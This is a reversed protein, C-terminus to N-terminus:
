RREEGRIDLVITQAEVPQDAFTWLKYQQQQRNSVPQRGQSPTPAQNTYIYSSQLPESIRTSIEPQAVAPTPLTGTFPNFEDDYYAPIEAMGLPKKDRYQEMPINQHTVPAPSQYAAPMMPSQYAAPAPSQYAAPMM